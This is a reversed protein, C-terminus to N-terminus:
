DDDDRDRSSSPPVVFRGIVPASKARDNNLSQFSVRVFVDCGADLGKLGQRATFDTAELAYPGVIRKVDRFREDYSWEVLMRASRDSRSWVVVSGNGPDGFTLGQLAQPREQEATIIAPAAGAWSPLALGAATTVTTKLFSRRSSHNMPLSEVCRR